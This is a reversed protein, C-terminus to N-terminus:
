AGFPDDEPPDLDPDHAPPAAKRAPAEGRHKQEGDSPKGGLLQINDGIVKLKSRKQGSEKDTWQDLSLRGAVFLPSGKRCYEAVIEATRQWLTVDIFTVEEKKEGSEATWNRNVALGIDCIATGKPTRKLEPDRTLNGIIHVVNLSAM